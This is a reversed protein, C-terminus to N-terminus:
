NHLLWNFYILHLYQKMTIYIKPVPDILPQPFALTTLVNTAMVVASQRSHDTGPSNKPPRARPTVADEPAPASSEPPLDWDLWAAQTMVKPPLWFLLAWPLHLLQEQDRKTQRGQGKTFTSNKTM